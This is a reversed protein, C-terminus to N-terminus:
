KNGGILLQIAILEDLSVEESEEDLTEKDCLFLGEPHNSLYLTEGLEIWSTKLFTITYPMLLPKIRQYIDEPIKYQLTTYYQISM